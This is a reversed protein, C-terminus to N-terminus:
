STVPASCGPELLSGFPIRPEARKGEVVKLV